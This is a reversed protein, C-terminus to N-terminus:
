DIFFFFLNFHIAHLDVPLLSSFFNGLLKSLHELISFQLDGNNGAPPSRSGIVERVSTRRTRIQVLIFFHVYKFTKLLIFYNLTNKFQKNWACYDYKPRVEGATPVNYIQKFKFM